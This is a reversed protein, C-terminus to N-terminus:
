TTKSSLSIPNKTIQCPPTKHRIADVMDQITANEPVSVTLREGILPDEGPDDIMYSKEGVIIQLYKGTKIVTLGGKVTKTYRYTHTM